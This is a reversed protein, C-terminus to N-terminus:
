RPASDARMKICTTTAFTGYRFAGSLFQFLCQPPSGFGQVVLTALIQWVRTKRVFGHLNRLGKPLMDNAHLVHIRTYTADTTRFGYMMDEGRLRGERLRLASSRSMAASGAMEM